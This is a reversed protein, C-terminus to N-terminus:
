AAPRVLEVGTVGPVTRSMVAVISRETEDDFSGDVTAVGDAVKM